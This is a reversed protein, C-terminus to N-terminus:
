PRGLGRGAAHRAALTGWRLPRNGGTVRFTLLFLILGGLLAGGLTMAIKAGEGILFREGYGLTQFWLLEGWFGMFWFFLPTFVALAIGAVMGSWRKRTLGWAFLAIAAVAVVFFFFSYMKIDKRHRPDLSSGDPPHPTGAGRDTTVEFVITNTLNLGKDFGIMHPRAEM